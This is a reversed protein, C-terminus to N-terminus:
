SSLMAQDEILSKVLDVYEEMLEEPSGQGNETEAYVYFVPSDPDPLMLVWGEDVGLLVGEALIADPDRGFREALGRMVRGKASWPCELRERLVNGFSDGFKRRVGSLPTERFVELASAITIFCDPSPLFSPFIYRGDALSALDAGVSAAKIAVNGLGTRSMQVSGGANEVLREYERSLNIPFVANEPRLQDILCALMVDNPVWEGQDDVFQVFEAEPGVVAGFAANVTPVIRAVREITEELNTRGAEHAANANAFGELVVASVGLRSFVRSAVLGAVGGCFDVVITAGATKERDVARELREVFQELVRGPYILEGIDGGHARRYEERVFAKEVSREDGETMPTADSSFFLIEVDDPDAGARVHAGASSKGSLVDHRVVGAHAARLDRINIGTGLLAATMARKAVQASLSSDRGLTVVAGPDLTTGFSSALRTVFEPTLDVNFKGSVVGRKFVTRLGMTEYILSQTVNAGSEITKHPYIKVEPAVTAGEGVIVDDGLASRELLRARAQVYSNRGVLTDILEAGEGIYTGEAVVSRELTAGSSIVVNDAIVSYPSIRAGEDVRVNEGIVVPGVLEADDVQARRGVYINERLRTGPPRVGAVKGDLVDRQASAFQELTGIDEWYDETVYGYLSRGEDLLKPFLEKSFDYEGDEPDPIEGMVSPELLYIGTNVTDSFVQGWAPKELFRSISGDEETIVIGFDLPNEVSKLVMTAESGKEEHFEVLRSLDADTLADGSIILLREGELGLQQEAVKVSGATGAPADEVSYGINVGWESGDGFYDRIEDPLFQLTVAIDTFGHRGLLGVIHEMCPANVIPIMPKPQDSTLPRLRTGQGGAMIVAKM